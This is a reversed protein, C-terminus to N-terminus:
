LLIGHHKFKAEYVSAYNKDPFLNRATQVISTALDRMKLGSGLGFQSELIIKDMDERPAGALYLELFAQFIPTSWLEDSIGDSVKAHATYYKSHNYKMDLADLKRGEWCQNHGDWKFVWEPKGKLGNEKTASSSAAWYDGFGEGMAGTDGGSWYRNIHHNIAHGLEHLIVDADENDDVCGHGFALRRSSPIYHSNDSGNVGNADVEISNPFIVASNVYGLSEIYRVNEDLHFYTMVDNFRVDKRKNEWVGNESTSPAVRPSEFDILKVKPGALNFLGDVISLDKLTVQRYASEFEEAPTNDQLDIRILTVAPNPNFVTALGDSSTTLKQLGFTKANKAEFSSVASKLSKVTRTGALRKEVTKVTGKREIAQDEISLISGNNANVTVIWHGYPSSVSLEIKYVLSREENNLYVLKSHITNLLEGDVALVNWASQIAKEESIASFIKKDNKVPVTQNYFRIVKGNLDTSIIFQANEIAISNQQQTFSYHIGTLSRQVNELKLQTNDLNLGYEKSVQKVLDAIDGGALASKASTPMYQLKVSGDDNKTSVSANASLSIFLPTLLTLTLNKLSM